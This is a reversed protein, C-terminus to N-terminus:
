QSNVMSQQTNVLPPQDNSMCSHTHVYIYIYTYRDIHMKTYLVKAVQFVVPIMLWTVDGEGSGESLQM